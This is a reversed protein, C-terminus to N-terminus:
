KTTEPWSQADLGVVVLEVLDACERLADSTSRAALLLHLVDEPDQGGLAATTLRELTSDAAAAGMAAKGAVRSLLATVPSDASADDIRRLARRVRAM